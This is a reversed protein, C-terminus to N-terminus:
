QPGRVTLTAGDLAARVAEQLQETTLTGGIPAGGATLADLRKGLAAIQELIAATSKTAAADIAAENDRRLEGGYLLPDVNRLIELCRALDSLLQQIQQPTMTADGTTPTPTATTIGLSRAIAPALTRAYAGSTINDRLWQAYDAKDHQGVELLIAPPKTDAVEAVKRENFEWTDGSPLVKAANLERQMAEAWARSVKSTGYLICANGLANSHLSLLRDLDTQANTWRVNDAYSAGVPAPGVVDLGYARLLPVLQLTLRRMWAQESDEVGTSGATYQNAPQQSHIIALRM